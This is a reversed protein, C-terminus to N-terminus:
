LGLRSALAKCPYLVFVKRTSLGPFDQAEL